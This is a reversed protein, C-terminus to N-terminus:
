QFLHPFHRNVLADSVLESCHEQSNQLKSKMDWKIQMSNPPSKIQKDEETKSTRNISFFSYVETKASHAPEHM